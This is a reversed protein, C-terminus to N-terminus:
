LEPCKEGRNIMDFSNMNKMESTSVSVIGLPMNTGAQFNQARAELLPSHRLSTSSGRFLARSM